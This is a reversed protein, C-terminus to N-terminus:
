SKRLIRSIERLRESLDSELRNTEEWLEKIKESFQTFVRLIEPDFDEPHTKSDGHTIVKVAEEHSMERKYPRRSRLADYVDVIAVIRAEIPIEEGKLGFPYGGGNYKEHHYLVINRAMEFRELDRLLIEGYLTHKKMIEFEEETLKGPKRLIEHPILLKGIDHLRAYYEIENSFAEGLGLKEAIFAALKGVRYIHNGTEEDYGEAIMSLEQAFMLHAKELDNYSKEVDQYAKELEQESSELMEVYATIDQTMEYFHFFLERFEKIESSELRDSPLFIKEDRFKRVMMILSNIDGDIKSVIRRVFVGSLAVGLATFGLLMASVFWLYNKVLKFNTKEIIIIPKSFTGERAPINIVDAYTIRTLKRDFAMKGSKLVEMALKREEGSLEPFDKGFPELDYEYVGIKDIFDYRKPINLISKVLTRMGSWNVFVSLIGIEDKSIRVYGRKIFAEKGHYETIEEMREFVIEGPRLRRLISLTLADLHVGDSSTTFLVRGNLDVVSVDCGLAKEGGLTIKLSSVASAIKSRNENYLKPMELLTPKIRDEITREYGGISKLYATISVKVLDEIIASSRGTMNYSLFSSTTVVFALMSLGLIVVITIMKKSIFDKLSSREESM